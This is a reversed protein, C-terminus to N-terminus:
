KSLALKYGELTKEAAKGWTYRDLIMKRLSEDYPTHFAAEVAARISDPENPDCYFAKDGFYEVTDGKDTIVINCGMVAAELTALGTTEFFSPLIHVKASNYIEYLEEESVRRIFRINPTAEEQCQNYYGINNPSPLGIIVLKYNTGRLARVLNLQNKRGEVRAVCVVTDKFDELVNLTKRYMVPDIANPVVIYDNTLRYKSVLRDYENKSNPLLVKSATILHRVSARHGRLLYSKSRIKEGNLMFRAVVKIYEISDESFLTNLLSMWGKRFKKEFEGYDLFITSIVFPKKSASAHYLIDAPRIINFFHLLDYGTYDIHEHSLKIDVTLGLERLYHATLEIQKTDGGPSSFLTSRSIFLVNM